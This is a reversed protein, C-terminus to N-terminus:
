EMGWEHLLDPEKPRYGYADVLTHLGIPERRGYKRAQLKVCDRCPGSRRVWQSATYDARPKAKQCMRCVKVEVSPKM